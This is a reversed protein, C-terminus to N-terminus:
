KLLGWHWIADLCAFFGFLAWVLMLIMFAWKGIEKAKDKDYVIGYISLGAFLIILVVSVLGITAIIQGLM